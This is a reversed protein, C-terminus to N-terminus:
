SCEDSQRIAVASHKRAINYITRIAVHIISCDIQEGGIYEKQPVDVHVCLTMRDGGPRSAYFIESM